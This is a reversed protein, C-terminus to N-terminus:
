FRFVGSVMQSRPPQRPPPPQIQILSRHTIYGVLSGRGVLAGRHPAEASRSRKHCVSASCRPAVCSLLFAEDRRMAATRGPPEWALDPTNSEMSARAAMWPLSYTMSPPVIGVMQRRIELSIGRHEDHRRVAAHARRREAGRAICLTLQSRGHRGSRGANRKLLSRREAEASARSWLHELEVSVVIAGSTSHGVAVPLDTQAGPYVEGGRVGPSTLFGFRRRRDM